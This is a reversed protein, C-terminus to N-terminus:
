QGTLKAVATSWKLRSAWVHVLLQPAGTARYRIAGCLCGGQYREEAM